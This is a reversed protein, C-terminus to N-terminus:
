SFLIVAPVFQKNQTKLNTISVNSIMKIKEIQRYDQPTNQLKSKKEQV